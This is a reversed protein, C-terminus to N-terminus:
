ARDADWDLDTVPALPPLANGPSDGQMTEHGMAWRGGRPLHLRCARLPAGAATNDAHSLRRQHEILM